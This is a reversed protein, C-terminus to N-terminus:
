AATVDKALGAVLEAMAAKRMQRYNRTFPVFKWTVLAERGGPGTSGFSIQFGWQEGWIPHESKGWFPNGTLIRELSIEANARNGSRVSQPGPAGPLKVFLELREDDWALIPAGAMGTKYKEGFPSIAYVLPTLDQEQYGNAVAFAIIKETEMRAKANLPKSVLVLVVVVLVTISAGIAIPLWNGDRVLSNSPSFGLQWVINGMILAFLVYRIYRWFRRHKM